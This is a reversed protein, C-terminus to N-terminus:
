SARQADALTIVLEKHLASAYCQLIALSINPAPNTELRARISENVGTREALETLSVGREERAAKLAHILPEFRSVAAIDAAWHKRALAILEERDAEAEEQMQRVIEKQEPTLELHIRRVVPPDFM